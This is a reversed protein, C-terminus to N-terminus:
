WSANYYLMQTEFDTTELAKTLAEYTYKVDDIYYQDYDLSGFFFGSASPLLEHCIKSNVVTLGDELIPVSKNTKKNWGYGNTVKAPVLVCEKLIKKCIRILKKLDKETVERHFGCDDIGDQVNDVFWKHIANAKRWYAVDEGIEYRPYRKEIDWVGYTKKIMSLLKERDEGDPLCGEDGGCWEKFTYKQGRRKWDNYDQIACMDKPGYGKYRPYRVLYGDLGM